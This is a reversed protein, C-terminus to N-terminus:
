FRNIRMMWNAPSFCIGPTAYGNLSFGAATSPIIGCDPSGSTGGDDNFYDATGAPNQVKWLTGDLGPEVVGRVSWNLTFPVAPTSYSNSTFYSRVASSSTDACLWTM